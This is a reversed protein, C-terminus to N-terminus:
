ARGAEPARSFRRGQLKAKHKKLQREVKESVIDIASYMDSSAASAIITAGGAAAVIIEASHQVGEVSLKIQTNTIGEFYKGLKEVKERAYDRIADTISVHRGSLTIRL